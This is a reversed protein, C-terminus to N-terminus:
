RLWAVVLVALIIIVAAAGIWLIRTSSEAERYGGEREGSPGADVPGREVPGTELPADPDDLREHLGEAAEERVRKLDAQSPRGKEM